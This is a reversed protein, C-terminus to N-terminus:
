ANSTLHTRAYIYSMQINIVGANKIVRVRKEFCFCEKLRFVHTHAYYIIFLSYTRENMAWKFTRPYLVNLNALEQLANQHGWGFVTETTPRQNQQESQVVVSNHARNGNQNHRWFCNKTPTALVCELYAIRARSDHTVHYCVATAFRGWRGVWLVNCNQNSYFQIITLEHRVCARTQITGLRVYAGVQLCEWSTRVCCGHVLWGWPPLIMFSFKVEMLDMMWAGVILCSTVVSVSSSTRSVLVILNTGGDDLKTAIIYGEQLDHVVTLNQFYILKHNHNQIRLLHTAICWQDGDKIYSWQWQFLARTCASRTVRMWENM